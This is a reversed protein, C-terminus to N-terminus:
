TGQNQVLNVPHVVETSQQNRDHRASHRWALEFRAALLRDLASNQVGFAAKRRQDFRAKGSEVFYRSLARHPRAAGNYVAVYFQGM